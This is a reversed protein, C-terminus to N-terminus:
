RTIQPPSSRTIFNRGMVARRRGFAVGVEEVLGATLMARFREEIRRHLVARESPELVLTLATFPPPVRGEGEILATLPRGSLRFVELARQIRQADNPHIRSASAPDRAALEAHLAPWGERAARADLEARVASDATPMAAIGGFLARYYLMTGGVLLPM